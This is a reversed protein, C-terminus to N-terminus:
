DLKRQKDERRIELTPNMLLGCAKRRAKYQEKWETPYYEYDM